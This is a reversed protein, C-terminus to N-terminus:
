AGHCTLSQEFYPNVAALYVANTNDDNNNNNTIIIIIVINQSQKATPTAHIGM